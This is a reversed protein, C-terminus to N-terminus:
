EGSAPDITNGDKDELRWGKQRGRPSRRDGRGDPNLVQQRDAVAPKSIHRAYRARAPWAQHHEDCHHRTREKLRELFGPVTYRHWEELMNSSTDLGARRRQDALSAIEHVLHPHQPWCLPIMGATPDWVYESNFWTVVDDLWSWLEKRLEPKTCTPPDWPRPILGIADGYKKRTAPDEKAALALDKYVTKLEPGDPMPFPLAPPRSTM